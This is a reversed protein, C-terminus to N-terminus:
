LVRQRRQHLSILWFVTQALILLVCLGIVVASIPRQLFYWLDGDSILM